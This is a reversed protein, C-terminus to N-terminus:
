YFVSSLFEADQSMKGELPAGVEIYEFVDLVAGIEILHCPNRNWMNAWENRDFYVNM